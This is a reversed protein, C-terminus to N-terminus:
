RGGFRDHYRSADPGPRRPPRGRQQQEDRREGALAERAGRGRAQADAASVGLHTVLRVTRPGVASILVGQERAAAVYAAADPRDLVM